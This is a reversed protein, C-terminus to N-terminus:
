IQTSFFVQPFQMKFIYVFALQAQGPAQYPKAVKEKTADSSFSSWTMIFSRNCVFYNISKALGLLPAGQGPQKRGVLSVWSLRFYQNSNQLKQM